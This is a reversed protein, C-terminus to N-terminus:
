IYRFTQSVSVHIVQYLCRFYVFGYFIFRMIPDFSNAIELNTILYLLSHAPAVSTPSFHPLFPIYTPLWFYTFFPEIVVLSQWLTLVLEHYSKPYITSHHWVVGFSTVIVQFQQFNPWTLLFILHNKALVFVNM